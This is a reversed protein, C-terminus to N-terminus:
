DTIVLKLFNNYERFITVIINQSKGIKNTGLISIDIHLTLSSLHLVQKYLQFITIIEKSVVAAGLRDSNQKQFFSLKAHVSLIYRNLVCLYQMPRYM